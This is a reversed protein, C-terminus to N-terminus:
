LWLYASVIEQLFYFLMFLLNPRPNYQIFISLTFNHSNCLYSGFSVHAFEEFKTDADGLTGDM